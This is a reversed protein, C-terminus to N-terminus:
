DGGSATNYQVDTSRPLGVVSCGSVFLIDVGLPAIARNDQWSRWFDHPLGDIGIRRASAIGSGSFLPGDPVFGTVQMILTASRDPYEALGQAFASLPPMTLPRDILVFQAQKPESVLPVGCHFRLWAAAADSPTQLWVPTEYDGLALLAAGTAAHLPPPSQPLDSLTHLRAPSSLASLLTRFVQQSDHVPDDLGPLLPSALLSHPDNM